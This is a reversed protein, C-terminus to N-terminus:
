VTHGSAIEFNYKVIGLDLKTMAGGKSVIKAEDGELTIM